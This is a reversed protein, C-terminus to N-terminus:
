IISDAMFKDKYNIQRKQLLVQRSKECQMAASRLIFFLVFLINQLWNFFTLILEHVLNGHFM